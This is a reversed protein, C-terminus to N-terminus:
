LRPMVQHYEYWDQPFGHLLIVAPGSGGRVYHLVTGNVAAGDAVFGAGLAAVAPDTAPTVTAQQPASSCGSFVLAVLLTLIYRPVNMLQEDDSLAQRVRRPAAVLRGDRQARTAGPRAVSVHGLPRGTWACLRFLHPLRRRRRARVREHGAARAHVHSRRNRGHGREHRGAGPGVDRGDRPWGAGLQIQYDGGASAGGHVVGELVLQLRRRALIGLSVDVGDAAQVGAAERAAGAVGGVAHRRPPGP